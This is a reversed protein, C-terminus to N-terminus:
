NCLINNRLNWLDALFSMLLKVRKCTIIEYFQTLISDNQRSCIKNYYKCRIAQLKPCVCVFHIEDEIDLKCLKCIRDEVKKRTYRGTELICLWYVFVVSLEVFYICMFKSISFYWWGDAECSDLSYQDPAMCGMGDEVITLSMNSATSTFQFSSIPDQNSDLAAFVNGSTNFRYEGTSINAQLYAFDNAFLLLVWDSFSVFICHYM